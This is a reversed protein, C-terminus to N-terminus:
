QETLPSLYKMKPNIKFNPFITHNDLHLWIFNKLPTLCYVRFTPLTSSMWDVTAKKYEWLKPRCPDVCIDLQINKFIILRGMLYKCSVSLVSIFGNTVRNIGWDDGAKYLNTHFCPFTVCAHTSLKISTGVTLEYLFIVWHSRNLGDILSTIILSMHLLFSRILWRIPSSMCVRIFHLSTFM